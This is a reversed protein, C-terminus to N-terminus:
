NNAEIIAETEQQLSELVSQPEMGSVAVDDMADVLVNRFQGHGAFTPSAMGYSLMRNAAQQQPNEELFAMYDEDELASERIPVYGTAMAWEATNEPQLLFEMFAVYGRQEEESASAYLGLENGAFLTLNEDNFTPIEATGWDLGNEDAVPQVHAIGASSGIYLASEGRGFPGSFFGDEGATRAFGEEFMNVIFELAEVSEASDIEVSLTDRDIFNAGNQRAMTEFEMEFGNEFGMTVRDDGADTMAEALEIIEDWSQPVDFGYEDLIGQNYYMLRTSKSFPMAYKEGNYVSTMLFGDFIDDLTDESMGNSTLFDTSLEVLLGNSAMDPVDSATLQSMVPLDGSVGAGMVSQSLEAYGGQGQENIYFDDQSENFRDTLATIADQHPGNMAHWFDIEVTETSEPAAESGTDDSAADAEVSATDTEGSDCGALALAGMAMLGTGYRLWRKQRQM